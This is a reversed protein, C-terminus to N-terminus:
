ADYNNNPLKTIIEKTLPLNEKFIDLKIQEMLGVLALIDFEKVNVDVKINDDEDITIHLVTKESM